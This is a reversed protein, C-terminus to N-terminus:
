NSNFKRKVLLQVTLEKAKEIQMAAMIPALKAERMQETISLLTDMEMSDFIAAADKPKMTEYTKVARRLERLQQDDHKVILNDIVTQLDKLEQIKKTLENRKHRLEEVEKKKQRWDEDLKIIEDVWKLKEADKRRKLNDKVTSPSERFLNIDIM